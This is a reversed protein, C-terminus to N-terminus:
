KSFLINLDNYYNCKESNYTFCTHYTDFSPASVGKFCQRHQEIQEFGLIRRSVFVLEKDFNSWWFIYV